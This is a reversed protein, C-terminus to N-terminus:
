NLYRLVPYNENERNEGNQYIFKMKNFFFLNKYVTIPFRYINSM